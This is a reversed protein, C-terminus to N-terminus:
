LEDFSQGKRLKLCLCLLLSNPYSELIVQNKLTPAVSNSDPGLAGFSGALVLSYKLSISMHVNVSFTHVLESWYLKM